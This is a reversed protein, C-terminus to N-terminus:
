VAKEGRLMEEERKAAEPGRALAEAQSGYPGYDKGHQDFYLWGRPTRMTKRLAALKEPTM